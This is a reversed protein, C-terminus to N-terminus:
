AKQLKNHLVLPGLVLTLRSVGAFSQRRSVVTSMMSVGCSLECHDRNMFHVSQVWARASLIEELTLHRGPHHLLPCTAVSPKAFIADFQGDICGISIEWGFYVTEQLVHEEPIRASLQRANCALPHHCGIYAIQTQRM